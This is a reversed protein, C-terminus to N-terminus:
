LSPMGATFSSVSAYAVSCLTWFVGSSWAYGGRSRARKVPMGFAHDLLLSLCYSCMSSPRSFRPVGFFFAFSIAARVTLLARARLPSAFVLERLEVRSMEDPLRPPRREPVFRGFPRVFSCSYLSAFRMPMSPRDDIDLACSWRATSRRFHSSM